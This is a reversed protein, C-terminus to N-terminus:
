WGASGLVSPRVTLSTVTTMPAPDIPCAIAWRTLAASAYQEGVETFGVGLGGGGDQVVGPEVDAGRGDVDGGPLRDVSQDLGGGAEAVDGPDDVGGADGGALCWWRGNEGDVEVAGGDDELLEPVGDGGAAAPDDDGGLGAV